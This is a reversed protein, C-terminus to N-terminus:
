GGRQRLLVPMFFKFAELVLLLTVGSAIVISLDDGHLPGFRFIERIFPVSLSAALVVTVFGLVLILALSPRLFAARLSPTFSRNVLVLALVGLVLAFFCIARLETDPMSREVASWFVGVVILLAGLGQAL